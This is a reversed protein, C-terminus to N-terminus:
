ISLFILDQFATPALWVQETDFKLLAHVMLRNGFRPEEDGLHGQIVRLSLIRTPEYERHMQWFLSTNAHKSKYNKLLELAHKQYSFTTIKILDKENRRLIYVILICSFFTSFMCIVFKAIADNMHMYLDLAMQRFPAVLSDPKVSQTGFTQRVDRIKQVLSNRYLTTVGPISNASSLTSLRCFCPHLFNLPFFLILYARLPMKSHIQLMVELKSTPKGLTPNTISM